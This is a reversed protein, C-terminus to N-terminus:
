CCLPVGYFGFAWRRNLKKLAGGKSGRGAAPVSPGTARSGEGGASVGAGPAGLGRRPSSGSDTEKRVADVLMAGVNDMLAQYRPVKM